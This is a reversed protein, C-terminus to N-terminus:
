TLNTEASVRFNKFSRLIPRPAEPIKRSFFGPFTGSGGSGSNNSKASSFWWVPFTEACAWFLKLPYRFHEPVKRFKESSITVSFMKDWRSPVLDWSVHPSNQATKPAGGRSPAAGQPQVFTNPGGGHHPAAGVFPPFHQSTTPGWTPAGHVLSCTKGKNPPLM